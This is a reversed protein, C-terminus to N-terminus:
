CMLKSLILNVAQEGEDKLKLRVETMALEWHPIIKELLGMGKTTLRIEKLTKKELCGNKLLLRISRSVTSKELSLIESLESQTTLGKKSVIFLISIQSNTLEFSKFQKRFIASVIRNCKMLKRSICFTPNFNKINPYKSKEIM